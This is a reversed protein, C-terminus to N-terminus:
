FLAIPKSMLAVWDQKKISIRIPNLYILMDLNLHRSSLSKICYKRVELPDINLIVLAMEFSYETFRTNHDILIISVAVKQVRETAALQKMSLGSHWAPVALECGAHHTSWCKFNSEEMHGCVETDNQVSILKMYQRAWGWSWSWSQGLNAKIRIEGAVWGGVSFTNKLLAM